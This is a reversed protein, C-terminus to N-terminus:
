QPDNIDHKTVEELVQSAFLGLPFVYNEQISEAYKDCIITLEDDNFKKDWEFNAVGLIENGTRKSGQPFNTGRPIYIPFLVETQINQSMRYTIKNNKVDRLVWGVDTDTAYNKRIISNPDKRKAVVNKIIIYSIRDNTDYKVNEKLDQEWTDRKAIEYWLIPLGSCCKSFTLRKELLDPNDLWDSYGILKDWECYAFYIPTFSRRLKGHRGFPRLLVTAYWGNPDNNDYVPVGGIAALLNVTRKVQDRLDRRIEILRPCYRVITPTLKSCIRGSHFFGNLEGYIKNFSKPRKASNKDLMKLILKDIVEPTGTRAKRLPIVEEGKIASIYSVPETEPDPKYPYKGTWLRYLTAGAQYVDTSKTPCKNTTQEPGMYAITWDKLGATYKAPPSGMRKSLGFDGIKVSDDASILLNEPKIDRHLVGKEHAFALGRCIDLAYALFDDLELKGCSESLDRGALYEYVTYYLQKGKLKHTGQDFITMINRHGDLKALNARDREFLKLNKEDLTPLLFKIAVDRSINTDKGFFVQGMAGKAMKKVVKFRGGLNKGVLDDLLDAM